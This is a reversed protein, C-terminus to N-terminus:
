RAPDRAVLHACLLATWGFRDIPVGDLRVVPLDLGLVAAPDPVELAGDVALADVHEFEELWRATETIPLTADVIAIVCDAQVSRLVKRAAGPDHYGDTEVAIVVPRINRAAAIASRREEAGNAPVAVVARPRTGVPLDLATRHAELEAVAAPGVVAVVPAHPDIDPEPMRDLVGVVAAFRDGDRMRAAWDAPLGLEELVTRDALLRGPGRTEGAPEPAHITSHRVPAAHSAMGFGTEHGATLLTDFGSRLPHVPALDPEHLGDDPLPFAADEAAVPMTTLPQRRAPRLNRLLRWSAEVAPGPLAEDDTEGLGGAHEPRPEDDVAHVGAQDHEGHRPHPVFSSRQRRNPVITTARAVIVPAAGAPRRMAEAGDMVPQPDGLEPVYGALDEEAASDADGHWNVSWRDLEDGSPGADYQAAAPGTAPYDAVPHHGADPQDVHHYAAHPQDVHHPAAEPLAADPYEAHSHGTEPYGTDPYGTDSYSGDPYSGDPYAAESYGPDSHDADPHDPDPHYGADHHHHADPHGSGPHGADPHGADPYGAQHRGSHHAAHDHWDDRLGRSAPPLFSGLDERSVDEVMHRPGTLRHRGQHNARLEDVLATFEPAEEAGDAAAPVAAGAYAWTKGVGVLLPDAVEAALDLPVNPVPPHLDRVDTDDLDAGFSAPLWPRPEAPAAATEPAPMPTPTPTPTPTPVPEPQAEAAALVLLAAREAASARDALGLLPDADDEAPPESTGYAPVEPAAAQPAPAQPATAGPADAPAHAADPEGGATPGADGGRAGDPIEVAVEFGERAFFGLFGGRRVKEARVIKAATGGERHARLLLAELDTGELLLNTAV